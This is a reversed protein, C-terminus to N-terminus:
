KMSPLSISLAVSSEHLTANLPLHSRGMQDSWSNNQRSSIVKRESNKCDCVLLTIPGISTRGKRLDECHDYSRQFNKMDPQQTLKRAFHGYHMVRINGSQFDLSADERRTILIKTISQSQSTVYARAYSTAYGIYPHLYMQTWIWIYYNM